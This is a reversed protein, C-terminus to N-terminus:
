ITQSTPFRPRALHHHPACPAVLGLGHLIDHLMAYEWYTPPASARRLQEDRVRRRGAAQRAPVDCGRRRHLQPPWFLRRVNSTSSGDYYVAYILDRRDVQRASSGVRGSRTGVRRPPSPPTPRPLRFFSLRALRVPHSRSPEPGGKEAAALGQFWGVSGKLRARRTSDGTTATRPPRLRCPHQPGQVERAPRRGPALGRCSRRVVGAVCRSVRRM